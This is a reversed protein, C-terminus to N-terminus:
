GELRVAAGRNRARLVGYAELRIGREELLGAAENLVRHAESHSRTFAYVTPGWSSQGVGAGGAERLARAAEEAERCCFRGGGQAAAFYRGMLEDLREVASTFSDFDRDVVAPVLWDFVTDLIECHLEAQISGQYVREDEERVMWRSAPTIYVIGWDEPFDLRIMTKPIGDGGPRVGSDVVFGGHKFVAIGVGSVRGRGALEALRYVDVELGALRAVASYVALKAQTTSGLGRHRPICSDIRVRLGMEVRLKEFAELIFRHIEAAQCGKVEIGEGAEEFVMRYGVGDVGLGVGGWLRRVPLLSYFGFHLRAGTEVEVRM